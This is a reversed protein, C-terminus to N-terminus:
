PHKRRLLKLLEMGDLDSGQLWIDLIMLAPPPSSEIMALAAASDGAVRAQYGEDELIGAVLLRIDQEDDVILIDHPM